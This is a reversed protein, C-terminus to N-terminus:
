TQDNHENIVEKLIPHKTYYKYNHLICNVAKISSFTCLSHRGNESIITRSNLCTECQYNDM